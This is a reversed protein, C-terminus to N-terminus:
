RKNQRPGEAAPEDRCGLLRLVAQTIIAPPVRRWDDGYTLILGNFLSFFLVSLFQPSQRQIVGAQMAGVLIRSLHRHYRKGIKVTDFGLTKLFAGGGHGLISMYISFNAGLKGFLALQLEVLHNLKQRADGPFAEAEVLMQEYAEFFDGVIVKLLDEKSSFHWYINGPSMGAQRAIEAIPVNFFGKQAFLVGAAALIDQRSEARMRENLKLNRPM